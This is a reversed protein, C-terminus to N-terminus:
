TTKVPPNLHRVPAPKLSDRIGAVILQRADGDHQFDMEDSPVVLVPCSDWREIWQDYLINLRDLYDPSIDREFDRGRQKIRTLLTEVNSKLYVLLDPPPLFARIGEYLDHYAGYDRPSMQGQDYLNHAFIEADEYVSRDQVVSGPHDVLQRHHQLRRSLFFVQSHFSWRRMDAYFDALYPNEDVAEYFPKWEFTEALISTLTSKGVGINGAIAVFYKKSTIPQIM